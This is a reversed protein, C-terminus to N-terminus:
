AIKLQQQSKCYNRKTTNSGPYEAYKSIEELIQQKGIALM